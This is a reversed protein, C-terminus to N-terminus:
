SNFCVFCAKDIRILGILGSSVYKEGLRLIQLAFGGIEVDGNSLIMISDSYQFRLQLANLRQLVRLTKRHPALDRTPRALTGDLVLTDLGLADLDPVLHPAGVSRFDLM